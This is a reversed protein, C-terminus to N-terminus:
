LSRNLIPTVRAPWWFFIRLLMWDMCMFWHWDGAARAHSCPAGLSPGPLRSRPWFRALGVGDSRALTSVIM